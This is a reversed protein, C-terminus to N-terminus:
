REMEPPCTGLSNMIFSVDAINAGKLVEELVTIGHAYAPGRVHIRRPKGSGDSVVYYGFEGRVSETKVYADGPPVKWTLPNPIKNYYAGGPMKDIVQRVISISQEIEQRRVMARSWVDDGEHTPVIFDLQDYVEYPEDIRVDHKIGCGRLPSGVVGWEIAKEKPIIGVGEARKRFLANQFLLKDYDP